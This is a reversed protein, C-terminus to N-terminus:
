QGGCASPLTTNPPACDLVPPVQSKDLRCAVVAPGAATRVSVHYVPATDCDPEDRYACGDITCTGVAASCAMQACSCYNAFAVPVPGGPDEVVVVQQSLAGGFAHWVVGDAQNPLVETITYSSARVFFRAVGDVDTTATTTASGGAPNITFTWNALPADGVDTGNNDDDFVKTVAIEYRCDDVAFPQSQGSDATLAGARAIANGTITAGMSLNTELNVHMTKSGNPAPLAFGSGIVAVANPDTCTTPVDGALVCALAVGAEATVSRLTTNAPIPFRMSADPFDIGGNNRATVDFAPDGGNGACSPAVDSRLEAGVSVTFSTSSRGECAPVPAANDATERVNLSFQQNNTWGNPDVALTVYLYHCVGWTARGAFRLQYPDRTPLSQPTDVRTLGLQCAPHSETILTVDVISVLPSSSTLTVVPNLPRSSAPGGGFTLFAKVQNGPSAARPSVTTAGNPQASTAPCSAEDELIALAHRAKWPDDPDGFPVEMDPAMTYPAGGLTTRGHVYAVNYPNPLRGEVDFYGAPIYTEYALNFNQLPVDGGWVPAYAVLHTIPQFPDNEAPLPVCQGGSVGANFQAMTLDGDGPSLNCRYLTFQASPRAHFAKTSVGDPLDDVILVNDVRTVGVPPRVYVSSLGYGDEPAPWWQYNNKVTTAGEGCATQGAQGQPYDFEHEVYTLPAGEHYVPENWTLLSDVLFDAPDAAAIAACTTSMPFTFIASDYHSDYYHDVPAHTGYRFVIIASGDAQPQDTVFEWPAGLVAQSLDYDYAAGVNITLYADHFVTSTRGGAGYRYSYIMENRPSGNNDNWGVVSLGLGSQWGAEQFGDAIGTYTVRPDQTFTTQTGGTPTYTGTVGASMPVPQDETWSYRALRARVNITGAIGTNDVALDTATWHCTRPGSTGSDFPCGDFAFTSTPHTSLVVDVYAPLRLDVVLNHYVGGTLSYGVLLDFESPSSDDVKLRPLPPANTVAGTDIAVDLSVTPDAYAASGFLILAFAAFPLPLGRLPQGRSSVRLGRLPQGLFPLARARSSSSPM